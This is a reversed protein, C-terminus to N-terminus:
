ELEFAGTYLQYYTGKQAILDDHTGREIIHGHDLVMIADSNRVTSLRHAIVFVTRGKMLNDMGEQVLAETRTDISSTAEDLIMVPPDAVAARAISLLQRQGQSLSAGNGTLMTNYGDPLRTIFSDANALKAAAICEEDTADLKGYRINDMVTGTFLNVDQLVVGLSRRLDPKKIKGINIHDYRIKGDPIDYFRNLLNTITTKGAGTAGVFAIKQGPKAYLSVDYLVQKEPVYGFDVDVMEVDGELKAYTTTGEAKHYHKWAWMGTHKDTEEIEGKDNYQANVLTVYGDDQEPEQDILEFVRSAGATGMAIMSIQNSVQGITQTVQRSMTLFSVIIGITVTSTGTLGLNTCKTYVMLGGVIALVVYLLNGMNNMIPGIVNGNKNASEGDRFLQDNLEKFRKKSEEEHNFVKVVKQGEMMEEIFGEEKALSKQQAMMYKSANGAFKKSLKTLLICSAIVILTLWVSYYLMMIFMVCIQLMAQVLSPISQGILQRIADTDNTYTSMIDGHAHTDFFKIPLDQMKEFMDNRLSKLTGQTVKAMIRSYTFSCLIGLIYIMAMTSLISAFTKAVSALGTSLGPTIVEDILRQMFVTAVTGSVSSIVICIVVVILQVRYHALLYKILRGLTGKKAKPRQPRRLGNRNM